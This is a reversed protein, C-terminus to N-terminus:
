SPRGRLHGIFDEPREVSGPHFRRRAGVKAIGGAQTVLFARNRGFRGGYGLYVLDEATWTAQKEQRVLRTCASAEWAAEKVSCRRRGYREAAV